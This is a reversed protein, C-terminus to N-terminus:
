LCLIDQNNIKLDPGIDRLPSLVFDRDALAPHPITLIEDHWTMDDVALIDIDITRPSWRQHDKLRGLQAEINQIFSFLSEVDLSTKGKLAMNLVPHNWSSDYHDTILAPTEYLPSMKEIQVFSKLLSLAQLIHFKRNGENSGLGLYINM